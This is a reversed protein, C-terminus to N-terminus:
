EAAALSEGVFRVIAEFLVARPFARKRDPHGMWFSLREELAM